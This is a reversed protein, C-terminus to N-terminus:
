RALVRLNRYGMLQLIYYNIAADGIDDAVLVIQAYRPVGAKSIASWLEPASRPSGDDGVLSSFPLHVLPALRPDDPANAGAAVYVRPFAGSSSDALSVMIPEIAGAAYISPRVPAAQQTWPLGKFAWEDTTAGLISVRRHGISKLAVFALAAQRDVGSESVILAEHSPNVGHSGLTRMLAAPESLGQAFEQAPISRASPIHGAAYAEPARVDIINLRSVGYARLMPHTWAALWPPERTLHPAAYTWLPLRRDDRVWELQSGVFLKVQPYEAIFKLAFFPVSAAIGGGCYTYVQQEPRVGLHRAMAEIEQRSKFTKDTNFLEGIPWLVAHPLHGARDFFKTAGYYMEPELADILASGRPDGSAVLVETVDARAAVRAKVSFDGAPPAPTKDQTVAGGFARWKALGGDLVHLDEVPFGRYYLEYFLRTAFYSGGQDYIVIKRGASVGWSRIRRQMLAADAEDPGYAFLDVHVAGPIHGAEHLKAPQTDLLLLGPAQMRERLWAADVLASERALAPASGLLVAVALMAASIFVLCRAQMTKEKSARGAVTPGAGTRALRSAVLSPRRTGARLGQRRRAHRPEGGPAARLANRPIM